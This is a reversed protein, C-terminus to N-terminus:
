TAFLFDDLFPILSAASLQQVQATLCAAITRSLLKAGPEGKNSVTVQQRQGKVTRTYSKPTHYHQMYRAVEPDKPGDPYVEQSMTCLTRAALPLNIFKRDYEISEELSLIFQDCLSPLSRCSGQGLLSKRAVHDRTWVAGEESITKLGAKVKHRSRWWLRVISISKKADRAVQRMEADLAAQDHAEKELREIYSM